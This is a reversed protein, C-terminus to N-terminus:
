HAREHQRPAQASEEAIGFIGHPRLALWLALLTFIAIDRSDITFAASWLSEALGLIIAGAMAGPLSGIGGIVAAVLAKLGIGLGGAHGVGGYTLTTLTGAFGALVGSLALSAVLIRGPDVGCLSAAFPDDASARWARGFRTRHMGVLLAACASLAAVIVTIAMVSSTAIFDGARVIAFPSTMLPAMWRVGNGQLLRIAESWTIALALTAILVHQGPRGALRTLVIRGLASGHSVATYIGVALASAVAILALRREMLVYGLYAGYGGLITMEGFALNIRGILGYVLAYATALLAYIGILPLAGSVHQVALAVTRPVERAQSAGAIPEPDSVALDGSAIWFRKLLHLRVESYAGDQTGLHTLEPQSDARTAPAFGCRIDFHDDDGAPRDGAIRYAIKVFTGFAVANADTELIEIKAGSKHLAPIISRCFKVESDAALRACGAVAAVTVALLVVALTRRLLQTVDRRAPTTLVAGTRVM